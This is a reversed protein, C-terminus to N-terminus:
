RTPPARAKSSPRIPTSWIRMTREVASPRLPRGGTRAHHGGGHRGSGHRAEVACGEGAEQREAREGDDDDEAGEEEDGQADALVGHHVHAPPEAEDRDRERCVEGRHARAVREPAPERESERGDPSQAERGVDEQARAALVLVRPIGRHELAGVAVLRRIGCQVDVERLAEDHPEDGQRHLERHDRGTAQRPHEPEADGDPRDPEDELGDSVELQGAEAVVGVVLALHEVRPEPVVRAVRVVKAVGRHPRPEEEDSRAGPRAHEGDQRRTGHHPVEVRTRSLLQQLLVDAVPPRLVGVVDSARAAEERPRRLGGLSVSGGAVESQRRRARGTRVRRVVRPGVRTAVVAVDGELDTRHVEFGREQLDTLTSPAPHGYDNGAGVSVLALRGAVLDLLREDRNSSGHHAVKYVDVTGWRLPDARAARVVEAAAEREIDGSLLVGVGGVHLTLVVSGNNAVSGADIERAPWWVDATVGRISLAAGARLEGVPVQETAALRAVQAAEARPERVTSTLVRGVPRSELVAALGRVHDAHFHTLVVADVVVVGLADLCRTMAPPDPGTDVVLAHGEGTNVVLGDGQGVDCAVLVWGAPPWALLRAPTAAGATVLALSVVLLPATRSRHWAWPAVLLVVVTLVALAVAAAASDGWAVAGYPVEACRRAVWAIGQAPLGAGWAIGSAGTVWLVSTLAVTVGVITTPAVLPAALLNALVAVLSVSGQLPVVVPACVVQAAVPVALVTGLGELRRRRTVWGPLRRTIARGWPQAFLLLGLTAVSSLAFGYSRALWPDWVLLLVIAGSLAPLGVQRRATSLGLLGVCGMVAARVVSPEPRALVVFAVLVALAVWPRVRRGIGLVGCLGIAAALVLTVNSGSVASLHSMGTLLMADTLDPPNRSTDGIVLAPVLGRADAPLHDTAARFDGRVSDAAEFLAGPGALVRVPGTPSAVAVVDDGPDAPSLRATLAVTDHWGVEAWELGGVVLVPTSVRSVVGRGSVEGVDVRTYVMAPRHRVPDDVPAAGVSAAGVPAAGDPGGVGAHPGVVRPEALVLGRLTVVAREQALVGVPGVERAVRHGAAAVLLLGLVALGLAALRDRQARRSRNRSSPSAARGTGRVLLAAGGACALGAWGVWGVPAVLGVFAVVLWGLLTPVLLRLDLRRVGTSGRTM